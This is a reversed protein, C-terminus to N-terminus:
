NFQVASRLFPCAGKFNEFGTKLDIKKAEFNKEFVDFKNFMMVIPITMFKNDPNLFAPYRNLESFYHISKEYSEKNDLTSCDIVDVILTLNDCFSKTEVTHIDEPEV